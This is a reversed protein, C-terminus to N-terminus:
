GAVEAIADVPCVEICALCRTCREDVVAPRKPAPRLAGEPCTM